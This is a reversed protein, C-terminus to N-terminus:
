ALSHSPRSRVELKGTGAAASRNKLKQRRVDLEMGSLQEIAREEAIEGEAVDEREEDESPHSAGGHESLLRSFTGQSDMLETYTGQEAIRGGEICLIYDAEPLVHLAHTVIRDVDASEQSHLILTLALSAGLLVTKGRARLGLM